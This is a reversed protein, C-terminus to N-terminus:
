RPRLAVMLDGPPSGLPGANGEQPFAMLYRDDLQKPLRVELRRRGKVRGTGGCTACKKEPVSGEGACADCVGVQAFTGFPTRVARRVRGQGKCDPCTKRKGHEAGSAGCASCPNFADFEYVKQKGLDGKAVAVSLNLDEGKEARRPGGGAGFGGTFMDFISGMGGM